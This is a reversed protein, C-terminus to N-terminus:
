FKARLEIVKGIVSVPLNLIEDRTFRNVPYNPNSPILHISGDEFKKVKRLIAEDSNVMIVAIDGCECSPQMLVIIVDGESIKPEMCDGKVKLAVIEGKSAVESTIEEWDLIEEVAVAPVGAHVMGVVPVRATAFGSKKWGMIFEPETSLISALDELKDSPINKIIDNEYKFITQKSVGLKRALDEQTLKARLRLDKIRTGKFM